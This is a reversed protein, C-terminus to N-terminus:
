RGRCRSSDSVLSIRRWGSHRFVCQLARQRHNGRQSPIGVISATTRKSPPLGGFRFASTFEMISNWLKSFPTGLVDPSTATGARWANEGIIWVQVVEHRYPWERPLHSGKNRGYLLEAMGKEPPRDSWPPSQLWKPQQQERIYGDTLLVEYKSGPKNFYVTVM